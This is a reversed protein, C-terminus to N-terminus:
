VKFLFKYDEPIACYVKEALEYIEFHARSSLRLNLFNQLSRANITWYLDLKYCEPLAYKVEDNTFLGAQVLKRLNELAQIGALDITELGVMNIYKSIRAANEKHDPTMFSPEYKLEKLTYRTSKVSLSAMRHRALEQLNLRSIGMIRFNFSIHELTSTHNRKIVNEILKKDKPGLKYINPGNITGDFSLPGQWFSDSLEQSEYCQRIAEVLINLPTVHKLKVEINM